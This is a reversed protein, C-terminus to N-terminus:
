GKLFDMLSPPVLRATVWLAAQYATMAAQAKVTADAMDTDQIGSLHEQLKVATAAAGSKGADAQNYASGVETRLNSVTTLANDLETLRGRVANADGNQLDQSLNYLTKVFDGGGILQSGTVNISVFQGPAVERQMQATNGQYTLSYGASSTADTFAPGAAATGAFLANGTYTQNLLSVAQKRLQEVEIGAPKASAIDSSGQVALERARHLVGTLTSLAADSAGLWGKADDANNQIQQLRGLQSRLGLDEGVHAPDDSPQNIRQGGALQAQADALQSRLQQMRQLSAEIDMQATVRM